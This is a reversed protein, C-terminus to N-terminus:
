RRGGASVFTQAVHGGDGLCRLEDREDVDEGDLGPILLPENVEERTHGVGRHPMRRPEDGGGKM